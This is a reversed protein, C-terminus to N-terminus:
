GKIKNNKLGEIFYFVGCDMDEDSVIKNAPIDLEKLEPFFVYIDKMKLTKSENKRKEYLEDLLSYKAREPVNKAIIIDGLKKLKVLLNQKQLVTTMKYILEGRKYPKVMYECAYEKMSGIIFDKEPYATLMIVETNPLLEKLKPLLEIGNIDPLCIDQIILDIDPHKEAKELAEKGNSATILRYRQQRIVSAIAKQTPPNDEVLLVTVKESSTKTGPSSTKSSRENFISEFTEKPLIKEIAKKMPKLGNIIEAPKKTHLLLRYLHDFNTIFDINNHAKVITDIMSNKTIPEQLCSYAGAKMWNIINQPNEEPTIVIIEALFNINKIKKIAEEVERSPLPHRITVIRIKNKLMELTSLGEDLDYAVIVEFEPKLLKTLSNAKLLNEGIALIISKM